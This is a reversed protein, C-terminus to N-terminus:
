APAPRSVQAPQLLAAVPEEATPSQLQATRLVPAAARVPAWQSSLEAAAM